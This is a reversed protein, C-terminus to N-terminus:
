MKISPLPPPNTLVKEWFIKLTQKHNLNLRPPQVIFFFRTKYEQTTWQHFSYDTMQIHMFELNM